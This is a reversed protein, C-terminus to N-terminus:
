MTKLLKARMKELIEVRLERTSQDLNVKAFVNNTDGGRFSEWELIGLVMLRFANQTANNSMTALLSASLQLPVTAANAPDVVKPDPVPADDAASPTGDVATPTKQTDKKPKVETLKVEKNAATSKSATTTGGVKGTNVVSDADAKAEVAKRTAKRLAAIFARTDRGSALGKSIAKITKKQDVVPLTAISRLQSMTAGAERALERVDDTITLITLRQKIYSSSKHIRGALIQASIDEAEMLFKLAGAEAYPDMAARQQNEALADYLALIVAYEDDGTVKVIAPIKSAWTNINRSGKKEAYLEQMCRFRRYGSVLKYKYKPITNVPQVSVSSVLGHPNGRHFSERISEKLQQFEEDDDSGWHEGRPNDKWSVYISKIPILKVSSTTTPKAM